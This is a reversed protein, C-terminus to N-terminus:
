SVEMPSSGVSALYTMTPCRMLGGKDKETGYNTVEVSSKKRVVSNRTKLWEQNASLFDGDAGILDTDTAFINLSFAQDRHCQKKYIQAANTIDPGQLHPVSACEVSARKSSWEAIQHIARSVEEISGEDIHCQVAKASQLLQAMTDNSGIFNAHDVYLTYGRHPIRLLDHNTVPGLTITRHQHLNNGITLSIREVEPNMVMQKFAKATLSQLIPEEAEHIVIDGLDLHKASLSSIYYADVNDRLLHDLGHTSIM